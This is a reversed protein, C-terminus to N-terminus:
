ANTRRHVLSHIIVTLLGLATVFTLLRKILRRRAAQRNAEQLEQLEQQRFQLDGSIQRMRFINVKCSNAIAADQWAKLTSHVEEQSLARTSVTLLELNPLLSKLNVMRDPTMELDRVSLGHVLDRVSPDRIQLFDAMHGFSPYLCALEEGALTLKAIGKKYSARAFALTRFLETPSRVVVNSVRVSAAAARTAQDVKSFALFSHQDLFRAVESLLVKPLEERHTV